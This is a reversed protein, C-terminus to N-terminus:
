RYNKSESLAQDIKPRWYSIIESASAGNFLMEASANEYNKFIMRCRKDLDELELADNVENDRVKKIEINMKRAYLEALDFSLKQVELIEKYNFQITDKTWSKSKDFVAIAEFDGYNNNKMTIGNWFFMNQKSNYDPRMEFDKITINVNERWIICNKLDYLNFNNDVSNYQHKKNTTHQNKILPILTSMITLIGISLVIKTYLKDTNNGCRGEFSSKHKWMAGRGIQYPIFERKHKKWFILRVFHYLFFTLIPILGLSNNQILFVSSLLLWILSFYINRFRLGFPSSVTQFGIAWSIWLTTPFKNEPNYELVYFYYVVSIFFASLYLYDSIIFKRIELKGFTFKRNIENM